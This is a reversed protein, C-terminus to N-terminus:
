VREKIRTADEPRMWGFIVDHKVEEMDMGTSLLRAGAMSQRPGAVYNLGAKEIEKRVNRVFGLWETAKDKDAGYADCEAMVLARELKNDYGWEIYSMRNKLSEDQRQGTNYSASAGSMRTNGTFILVTDEHKSVTGNGDPFMMVDNAILSNYAVNVDGPAKDAEDIILVHGEHFARYFATDIYDGVANRYGVISTTTMKKHCAIVTCPREMMEALQQAAHTKGSGAPGKLYPVLGVKLHNLMREFQPHVLEPVKGEVKMFVPASLVKMHKDITAAVSDKTIGMKDLEEKVRSGISGKVIEGLAAELTGAAAPAPTTADMPEEKTDHDTEAEPPCDEEARERKDDGDERVLNALADFEIPKDNISWNGANGRLGYEWALDAIAGRAYYPFRGPTIRGEGYMAKVLSLVYYPTFGKPMTDLNAMFASVMEDKRARNYWTATKGIFRMLKRLERVKADRAFRILDGKTADVTSQDDTLTNAFPRDGIALGVACKLYRGTHIYKSM